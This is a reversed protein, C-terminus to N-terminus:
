TQLLLSTDGSDRHRRRAKSLCPPRRQRRRPRRSRRGESEVSGRAATQRSTARRVAHTASRTRTGTSSAVMEELQQCNIRLQVLTGDWQARFIKTYDSTTREKFVQLRLFASVVFKSIGERQLFSHLENEVPIYTHKCGCISCYHEADVGGLCAGSTRAM